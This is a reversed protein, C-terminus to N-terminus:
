LSVRWFYVFCEQWTSRGSSWLYTREERRCRIKGLIEEVQLPRGLGWEPDLHCMHVQEYDSELKRELIMAPTM